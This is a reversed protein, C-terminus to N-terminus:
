ECTQCAVLRLLLPHIHGPEEDTAATEGIWVPSAPEIGHIKWTFAPEAMVAPYKGANLQVNGEVTQQLRFDKVAPPLLSRCIKNEAYFPATEYGVYLPKGVRVLGELTEKFCYEAQTLFEPHNEPLKWRSKGPVDAPKFPKQRQKCMVRDAVGQLEPM